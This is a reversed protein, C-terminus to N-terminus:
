KLKDRYFQGSGVPWQATISKSGHAGVLFDGDDGAVADALFDNGL